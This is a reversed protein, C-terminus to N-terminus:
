KIKVICARWIDIGKSSNCPGCLPQINKINNTGGLCVPVIHDKTLKEIGVKKFCGPCVGDTKSLLDRWEELTHKGSTRRLSAWFYVKNKNKQRYIKNREKIKDKNALWYKYGYERMKTPNDAYWRKNDESRKIDLPKQM